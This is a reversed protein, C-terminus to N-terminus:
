GRSAVSKRDRRAQLRQRAPTAQKAGLSEQSMGRAMGRPTRAEDTCQSGARSTNAPSSVQQDVYLVASDVVQDTVKGVTKLVSELVGEDEQSPGGLQNLRAEIQYAMVQLEQRLNGGSSTSPLGDEGAKELLFIIMEYWLSNAQARQALSRVLVETPDSAMPVPVEVGEDLCKPQQFGRGFHNRKKRPRRSLGQSDAVSSDEGTTHSMTELDDQQEVQERLEQLQHRLQQQQKNSSSLDDHLKDREKLLREMESQQHSCREQMEAMAAFSKARAKLLEQIQADRSEEEAQPWQLEVVAAGGVARHSARAVEPTAVARHTARPASLTASVALLEDVPYPSPYGESELDRCHAELDRCDEELRKNQEELEALADELDRLSGFSEDGQALEDHLNM